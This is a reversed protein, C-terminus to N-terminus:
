PSDHKVDHTQLEQDQLSGPTVRPNCFDSVRPSCIKGLDGVQPEAGLERRLTVPMSPAESAPFVNGKTPRAIPSPSPRLGCDQHLPTLEEESSCLCNSGWTAQARLRVQPSSLTM